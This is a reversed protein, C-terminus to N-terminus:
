WHRRRGDPPSRSAPRRAPPSARASRHPRWRRPRCPAAPARPPPGADRPLAHAGGAKAAGVQNGVPDLQTRVRARPEGEALDREREASSPQMLGVVRHPDPGDGLREIEVARRHAVREFPEHKWSASALQELGAPERDQVVAVVGIRLREAGGDGRRRREPAPAPEHEDGARHALQTRGGGLEVRLMARSSTASAGSTSAATPSNTGASAGCASLRPHAAASRPRDPRGRGSGPARSRPSSTTTSLADRPTASSRISGASVPTDPLCPLQLPAQLRCKQGGRWTYNGRGPGPRGGWGSSRHEIVPERREALSVDNEIQEVVDAEPGRARRHGREEQREDHARATM